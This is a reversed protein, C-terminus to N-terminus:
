RADVRGATREPANTSSQAHPRIPLQLVTARQGAKLRTLLEVRGDPFEIADHHM